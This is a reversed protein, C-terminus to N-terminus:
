KYNIAINKDTINKNDNISTELEKNCEENKDSNVKEM